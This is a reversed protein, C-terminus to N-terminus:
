LYKKVHLIIRFYRHGFNPPSIQITCRDLTIAPDSSNVASNKKKKHITAKNIKSTGTMRELHAKIFVVNIRM